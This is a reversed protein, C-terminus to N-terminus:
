GQRTETTTATVFGCRRRGVNRVGVRVEGVVHVLLKLAAELRERAVFAVSDLIRRLRVRAVVVEHLPQHYRELSSLVLLLLLLTADDTAAFYVLLQAMFLQRHRFPSYITATENKLSATTHDPKNYNLERFDTEQLIKNFVM